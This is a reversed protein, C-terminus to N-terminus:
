DGHDGSARQHHERALVVALTIFFFDGSRGLLSDLSDVLSSVGGLFSDLFAGLSDLVSSLTGALGDLFETVDHRIGGDLDLRGEVAAVSVSEHLIDLLVELIGLTGDFVLLLTAHGDVEDHVLVALDLVGLHDLTDGLTM